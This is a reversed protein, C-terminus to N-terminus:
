GRKELKLIDKRIIRYLRGIKFRVIDRNTFWSKSYWHISVTNKSINLEDVTDDYPNFYESPYITYRETKQYRDGLLLGNKKMGQTNLQPCGLLCSGDFYMYEDLLTKVIANNAIAGFGLGTNVFNENEFGVYFENDILSDIPKILEVDTDLYIGGNNYIIDLRAYDSLFAYKKKNYCYETYKNKYVDYNTENWEVIEYDPCFKRWSRICKKVIAPKQAKGFWCYHITKPIM